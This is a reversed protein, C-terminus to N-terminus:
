AHRKRSSLNHNRGAEHLSHVAPHRLDALGPKKCVRKAVIKESIVTPQFFDLYSAHCWARHDAQGFVVVGHYARIDALKM